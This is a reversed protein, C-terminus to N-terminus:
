KENKKSEYEHPPLGKEALEKQWNAYNQNRRIILVCIIVSFVMAFYVMLKEVHMDFVEINSHIGLGDLFLLLGIVTIFCLALMKMEAHANIFDSIPDIFVMMLIIALMVAFIMILLQNALGVATIVSDISFVVDMVMITAVAGPLSLPKKPKDSHKEDHDAKEEELNLVGRLETVGKYILYAGGLFLVIDRVSMGSAQRKWQGVNNAARALQRPNMGAAQGVRLIADRLQDSDMNQMQALLTQIVAADIKPEKYPM